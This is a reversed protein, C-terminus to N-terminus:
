VLVKCCLEGACLVVQQQWVKFVNDPRTGLEADPKPSAAAKGVGAKKLLQMRAHWLMDFLLMM